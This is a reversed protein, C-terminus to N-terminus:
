GSILRIRHSSLDAVLISGGPNTAVGIASLGAKIAPGGDGYFSAQGNYGHAGTGAVTYINGATMPVDYFTGTGAAVVRVRDNNTDAIVLNGAGDVAVDNPTSLEAQSAPGGDGSFGPQGDGAVPYIDGATMAQGYFTGTRAAVVRVRNNASDAIVLNGSADVAVGGPLALEAQTAPGGDGSYGVSGDGAVTYIDGAAMAQGYFSGTRAAVVRVRATETVILNGASDVAVGEPGELAAEAAPGGDGSSGYVGDGAITYIDGATMAQGYFTGSRAAVVRVRDNASDAFVLNGAADFVVASYYFNDTLGLSIEAQTGPGGDGSFGGSGDGAITYIDGAKMPQGFLTGAQAAVLRVRESAQDAVAIDGARSAAIGSPSGLLAKAAPMGNGSFGPYYDAMGPNIDDGAVTYIDGAKMALGYFTGTRVAVARVRFNGTDAVVLNGASDVAVSQPDSFKAQLAPGGDGSYGTQGDGAVTYIDGAKMAQGYFTGTRVAVVRVLGHTDSIVLNGAADNAVGGVSLVARTAPVGNGTAAGGGAATYIDGAKMALGYFTGTKVAVVRIRGAATDAIVLNGTSDVRVTGISLGLGAGVARGGDGSVNYGGGAVTYLHGVTMPQGYFTGTRGALVRVRAPKTIQSHDSNGGTDAIVLNGDHDPEADVPCFTANGDYFDCIGEAATYLHGAKMAQGYFSGTRAAAVRVRTQLQDVSDGSAEGNDAIVLNGAGDVAASCPDFLESARALRGNGDFGGVAVGAPTTLAGTQENVVRVVGGNVLDAVYLQNGASKLGCANVAISTAPGPGETGGTVTSIIGAASGARDPQAASAPSVSGALGVVAALAAVTAGGARGSRSRSRLIQGSIM